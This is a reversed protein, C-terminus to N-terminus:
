VKEFENYKLPKIYGLDQLLEIHRDITEERVVNLVKVIAIKLEKYSFRKPLKQLIEGYKTTQKLM